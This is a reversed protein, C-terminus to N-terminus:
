EGRRQAVGVREKEQDKRCQTNGDASADLLAVRFEEPLVRNGGLVRNIRCARAYLFDRAFVYSCKTFNRGALRTKDRLIRLRAWAPWQLQVQQIVERWGMCSYAYAHSLFYNLRFRLFVTKLLSMRREECSSRWDPMSNTASNDLRSKLFPTTSM